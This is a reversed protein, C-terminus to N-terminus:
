PRTPVPTPAPAPTPATSPPPGVAASRRRPIPSKTAGGGRAPHATPTSPAAGGGIVCILQDFDCARATAIVHDLLTAQGYPLLQKPQGLRKSSGAALVLGTTFPRSVKSRRAHRAVGKLAHVAHRRSARRVAAARRLGRQR